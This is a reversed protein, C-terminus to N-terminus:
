CCFFNPIYQKIVSSPCCTSESKSVPMGINLVDTLCNIEDRKNMIEKSASFDFPALRGIGFQMKDDITKQWKKKVLKM